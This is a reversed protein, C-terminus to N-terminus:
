DSLRENKKLLAYNRGFLVERPDVVNQQKRYAPSKRVYVEDFPELHFDGEGGVVLGDKIDFSYTKGLVSSFSTSKPDKIRRTIDVKTTAAAELLGGSQVLLDEITM